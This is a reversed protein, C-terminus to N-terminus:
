VSKGKLEIDHKTILYSHLGEITKNIKNLYAIPPSHNFYLLAEIKAEVREHM